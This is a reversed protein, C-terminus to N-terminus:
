EYDRIAVGRAFIPVGDASLQGKQWKYTLLKGILSERRRYLDMNTADDVNMCVEFPKSKKHKILFRPHGPKKLQEYVAIIPSEADEESKYKYM